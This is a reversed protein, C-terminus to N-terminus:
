VPPPGGARREFGTALTLTFVVADALVAVSAAGAALTFSEIELLERPLSFRNALDRAFHWALKDGEADLRKNVMNAIGSDVFGPLSKLDMKELSPRFVLRAGAADDVVVPEILLHASVITLLVPVGAAKWHLQGAVELRLGQDAVFDVKHAPDLRIWRDDKQEEGKEDQDLVITVPLLEALLRKVTDEELRATIQM